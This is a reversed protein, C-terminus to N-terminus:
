SKEGPSPEPLHVPAGSKKWAGFGGEIHAVPKLGMEQATKAALASRWGGACFFVFTKDEQFVPKAYPSEPDIWFELMGRPCHFAGPMRGERELERPDRLDVFVVDGQGHMARAEEVGLTRILANAEELLAKYGKTITQPM